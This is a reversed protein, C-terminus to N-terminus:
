NIGYTVNLWSKKKKKPNKKPFLEVSIETKQPLEFVEHMSYYTVRM